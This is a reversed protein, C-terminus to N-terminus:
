FVLEHLQDSKQTITTENIRTVGQTKATNEAYKKDTYEVKMIYPPDLKFPKISETKKMAKKVAERITAQAKSPSLSIAQRISLAGIKHKEKLGYKVVAQEIDPVLNTAEKIAAGDGSIFVTPINYDSFTLMNLAIEGIKLDNLWINRIFPMFSHALVGKEAGAMGHFGHLFMADFTEDIGVPGGDGAHMILNCEPHLLEFDIGGPFGGHGPWAYVETAGGDLVGEVLANLEKTALRIAQQFYAGEELCQKKFDVVGAVGELDCVVYTKM